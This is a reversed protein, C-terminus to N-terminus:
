IVGYRILNFLRLGLHKRLAMPRSSAPFQSLWFTAQELALNAAPRSHKALGLRYSSELVRVISACQEADPRSGKRRLFDVNHNIVGIIARIWKEADHIENRSSASQVRYLAPSQQTWAISAGCIVPFWFATDESQRQDLAEPWYLDPTLRRRKVTAAHPAWPAFAIASQELIKTPQGYAPPQRLVRATQGDKFEEWCGVHLDAAPHSEALNKRHLLYDADILDDADLFLIWEGQAQALGFNRAAGPGRKPSEVLRVRPDPYQRVVEPGGDTSGNDVVIMEWDPLTQALVSRITEGIYNQKNFLPTIISFRPM